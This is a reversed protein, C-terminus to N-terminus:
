EDKLVEKVLNKKTPLKINFGQMFFVVALVGIFIIATFTVINALLNDWWSQKDTTDGTPYTGNDYQTLNNSNIINMLKNSYNPDTAYVSGMASVYETLNTSNKTKNTYIDSNLLKAHDIISEEVSNYKRFSATTKVAQGNVYELTSYNVTKGNYKSGAKIGFLNNDKYALDSLGGPNSGGSELIIQGLTVSAPVGYQEQAKIAGTIMEQTLTVGMKDIVGGLRSLRQLQAM